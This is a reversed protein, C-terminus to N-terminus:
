IKGESKLDLIRRKIRARELQETRLERSINSALRFWPVIRLIPDDSEFWHSFRGDEGLFEGHDSSIVVKGPLIEILSSTYTLVLNLTDYYATRLKNIGVNKAMIEEPSLSYLGIQKEIKQWFYRLLKSKSIFFHHIKVLLNGVFGKTFKLLSSPPVEQQNGLLHLGSEPQPKPYGILSNDAGIYPAHPQLFHIILRKSPYTVRAMQTAEIIKEPHVTGISEDWGNKWVDIIEHFFDSAQFGQVSTISNIYPNASVYVIDDRKKRFLRKCWEITTSGPSVAKILQGQFFAEVTREFYDYRCADLIILFDWDEEFLVRIDIMIYEYDM